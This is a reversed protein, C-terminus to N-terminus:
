LSLGPKHAISPSCLRLFIKAHRLALRHCRRQLPNRPRHAHDLAGCPNVSQLPVSPLLAVQLAPLWRGRRLSVDVLRLPGVALVHIALSQERRYGLMAPLRRPQLGIQGVLLVRLPQRFQTGQLALNILKPPLNVDDREAIRLKNGAQSSRDAGCGRRQAAIKVSTMHPAYASRRPPEGHSTLSFGTPPNTMALLARVLTLRTRMRLARPNIKETGAPRLDVRDRRLEPNGLNRKIQVEFPVDTIAELANNTGIPQTAPARSRTQPTL